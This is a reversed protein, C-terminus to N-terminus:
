VIKWKRNLLDEASGSIDDDPLYELEHKKTFRFRGNLIKKRVITDKRSRLAKNYIEVWEEPYETEAIKMFYELNKKTAGGVNQWSKMNKPPNQEVQSCSTEGNKAVNKENNEIKQVNELISSDLTNKKLKPLIPKITNKEERNEYTEKDKSYDELWDLLTNNEM